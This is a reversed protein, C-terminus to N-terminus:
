KEVDYPYPRSIGNPCFVNEEIKANLGTINEYLDILMFFFNDYKRPFWHPSNCVFIYDWEKVDFIHQMETQTGDKLIKFNINECISNSNKIWNYQELKEYKDLYWIWSGVNAVDYKDVSDKQNEGYFIDHHHDINFVNFKENQRKKSALEFLIADHNYAFSVNEPKKLKKLALSFINFIYRLNSDDYSIHSDINRIRNIEDWMQKPNNAAKVMDNYLNICPALIYDMDISLINVVKEKKYEEPLNAKM